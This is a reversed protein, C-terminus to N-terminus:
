FAKKTDILITVPGDNVLSVQMSARFQGTEVHLQEARLAGCFADFLARAPDPAMADGFSPRKGRRCDGLLTFQSIALVRGGIDRVGLNMKGEEDEFIRLGAVKAALQQADREDDDRAVGVLVCLGREIAGV